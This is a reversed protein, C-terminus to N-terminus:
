GVTEQRTMVVFEIGPRLGLSTFRQSARFGASEYVRIARQNFSAVTLRFGESPFTVKGFGLIAALLNAGLGRGTLDPRMGLGVDLLSAESYDGGPVRADIGYCCFGVLEGSEDRISYYHNEPEMFGRIDEPDPHDYFSYPPEYHWRAFLRADEEEIFHFFLRM